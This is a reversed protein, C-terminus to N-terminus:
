VKHSFLVVVNDEVALPVILQNVVGVPVEDIAVPETIVKELGLAPIYM